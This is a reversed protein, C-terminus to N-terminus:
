VQETRLRELGLTYFYRPTHGIRNAWQEAEIYAAEPYLADIAFHIHETGEITVQQWPMATARM